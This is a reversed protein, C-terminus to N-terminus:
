AALDMQPNLINVRHRGIEGDDKHFTIASLSRGSRYGSAANWADRAAPAQLSEVRVGGVERSTETHIHGTFFSRHVTKGWDESRDVAMMMPLKDMKATHGHTAGILCKGFRRYYAIGPDDNVTIRENNSYFLSLAVTLCMSANLDHNGVLMRTEVFAHKRAVMEVMSVALKAGAAFVRAWRSDVDLQHGSGPTVNRQDDQHYFDGLGLLVAHKSPRSQSVLAAMSKLAMDTAIKIDYDAGVERGWALMGYHLDPLPYITLLDDDAEAPAPILPAAGEYEAFTARLAEVLDAGGNEEKTKIWKALVRGGPDVLTSEGKVVHGVPVEYVDGADPKSGIWEQRVDGNKDLAVSHRNIVFGDPAPPQAMRRPTDELLGAAAARDLLRNVTAKDMATASAVHAVAGPHGVYVKGGRPVYGEALAATYLDLVRALRPDDTM